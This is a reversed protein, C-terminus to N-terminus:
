VLFCITSSLFIDFYGEPQISQSLSMLIGSLRFFEGLIPSTANTKDFKQHDTVTVLQLLSTQIFNVESGPKTQEFQGLQMVEHVQISHSTALSVYLEVNAYNQPIKPTCLVLAHLSEYM